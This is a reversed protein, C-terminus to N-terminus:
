NDRGDSWRMRLDIAIARAIIGVGQYDARAAATSRKELADKLPQRYWPFLTGPLDSPSWWRVRPTERSSRLEGGRVRCLFVRATHPRFGTRTYDGVHRGVEVDLGTEEEVERRLAEEASEGPELNGGPLEWGRVDARVTLLVEQSEAERKLIVGQVVVLPEWESFRPSILGWWATRFYIRPIRALASLRSM